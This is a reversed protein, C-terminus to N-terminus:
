QSLLSRVAALANARTAHEGFEGVTDIDLRGDAYSYSRVTYRREGNWVAGSSDRESTVFYRGAFVDSGIRSGFFRLADRDFFHNGVDAALQRLQETNHFTITNM